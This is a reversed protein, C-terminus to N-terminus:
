IDTRSGDPGVTVTAPQSPGPKACLLHKDECGPWEGRAVIQAIPGYNAIDLWSDAVAENKAVKGMLNKLRALKDSVRVLVGIEGFSAINGAGYDHQKKAFVVANEVIQRAFKFVLEKSAEDSQPVESLLFDTLFEVVTAREVGSDRPIPGVSLSCNSEGPKPGSHLPAQTPAATMKIPTEELEPGVLEDPTGRKANYMLSSFLRRHFFDAYTIPTSDYFVNDRDGSRDWGDPDTVGARLLRNWERGPFKADALAVENAAFTFTGDEYKPYVVVVNDGDSVRHVEYVKGLRLDPVDKNLTACSNQVFRVKTGKKLAGAESDTM